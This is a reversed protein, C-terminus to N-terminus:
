NFKNFCTKDTCESCDNYFPSSLVLCILILIEAITVTDQKLKGNTEQKM